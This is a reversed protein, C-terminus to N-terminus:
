QKPGLMGSLGHQTWGQAALPALKDSITSGATAAVSAEAAAAQTAVLDLGAQSQNNPVVATCTGFGVNGSGDESRVVILYVRGDDAGRRENRLRLDLDVDKADPAFRGTGDGTDPIETEDSWIEVKVSGAAGANDCGDTVSVALGVTILEHDPAWLVNTVISCSVAPATTDVVAIVQPCNSSQSCDDTATWTRTITATGGPGPVSVDASTVTASGCADVATASGRAAISTDGPCEIGLADPPCTIVPATTDAVGIVQDVTTSNGCTDTATWDRIVTFNNPCSGSVQTEGSTIAPSADCDDIATVQAADPIADCEVTEDVPVGTLTPPTTDVLTITQVCSATGGAGDDATWTRTLTEACNGGPTSSDVFSVAGASCGGSTANGTATPSTDAGCDVTLDSPCSITVSGGSGATIHAVYIGMGFNSFKALFAVDNNNNMSSFKGARAAGSQFMQYGISGGTTVGGFAVGLETLSTTSDSIRVVEAACADFFYLGLLSEFGTGVPIIGSGTFAMNGDDNIVASLGRFSTIRAGVSQGPPTSVADMVLSIPGGSLDAAYIGNNNQISGNRIASYFGMQGSENIPAMALVIFQSGSIDGPVIMGNNDLTDVVHTQPGGLVDGGFLGWRQFCCPASLLPLFMYDGADNIENDDFRALFTSAPASPTARPADQFQMAVVLPAVGGTVPVAYSAQINSGSSRRFGGHFAVIGNNNIAIEPRIEWHGQGLAPDCTIDIPIGTPCINKNSDALVVHTTGSVTTGFIGNRRATSTCPGDCFQAWYVVQGVDNLSAGFIPFPNITGFTFNEFSTTATQGAVPDLSDIIKVIPGGTTTTSYFGTATMTNTSDIIRAEFVVDGANNLLPAVNIGFFRYGPRGPVAFTGAGTGDVTTDMLVAMPFSPRKVYIGFAGETNVSTAKASFGKFVVEGAENIVPPPPEAATSWFTFTSDRGPVSDTLALDRNNISNGVSRAIKEITVTAQASATVALALLLILTGGFRKM